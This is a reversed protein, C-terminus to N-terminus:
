LDADNGKGNSAHVAPAGGRKMMHMRTRVQNIQSLLSRRQKLLDKITDSAMNILASMYRTEQMTLPQNVSHDWTSYHSLRLVARNLSILLDEQNLNLKLLNDMVQEDQVERINGVPTRPVPKSGVTVDFIRRPNPKNLKPIIAEDFEQDIRRRRGIQDHRCGFAEAIAELGCKDPVGELRSRWNEPIAKM